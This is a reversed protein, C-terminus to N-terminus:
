PPRTRSARAASLASRSSARVSLIDTKAVPRVDSGKLTVLAQTGGSPRVFSRPLVTVLGVSSTGPVEIWVTEVPATAAPGKLQGVVTYKRRRGELDVAVVEQLGWNSFWLRGEHWRPSEGIGLGTTLIRPEPM